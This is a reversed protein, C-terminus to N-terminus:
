SAERDAPDPLSFAARWRSLMQEAVDRSAYREFAQDVAAHHRATWTADDWSRSANVHTAAAAAREEITAGDYLAGGRGVYEAMGPLDRALVWAGTAMAEAISMPMSVPHDTGHTHLYIGAQGVLAAVEDHPVDVRVEVPSGLADRRAIIAETREEVLKAHGLVLVFRHDPCQAATLLFTDLDKTLLGASTRVVLQRDKDPTPRYRDDDFCTVGIALRPHARWRDDVLHPFTHVLVGPDDLLEAVTDPVYEFGHTRVVHPIGRARTTPRLELGKHLWHTVVVDPRVADLADDLEGRHLPLSSEAAVAVDDQSWVQVEAGLAVLGQALAAIYTETLQPHHWEAFLVRLGAAPRGRHRARVQHVYSHLPLTSSIRHPSTTRYTSTVAPLRVPESRAALRLALDWDSLRLLGPDFPGIEDLVGRRHAMANLDCQNGDVLSAMSRLDNRVWAVGERDDVVLQGSLTWEAAPHAALADVVRGLHTPHWSNDSDLYAIIEGRALALAHNRASPAGAHPRREYRFRDDALSAVVAETADDGGDDVVICEWHEYTQDQVSRLAHVLAAARRWTPTVVTVLVGTDRHAGPDIWAAHRVVAALGTSLAALAPSTRENQGADHQRAQEAVEALEARLAAVEAVLGRVDTAVAEQTALAERGQHELLDLQDLRLRRKLVPRVRHWRTM